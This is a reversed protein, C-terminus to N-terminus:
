ANIENVRVDGTENISVCRQGYASGLQGVKTKM